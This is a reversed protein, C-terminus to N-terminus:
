NTSSNLVTECLTNSKKRLDAIIALPLEFDIIQPTYMLFYNPIISFYTTYEADWAYCAAAAALSGAIPPDRRDPSPFSFFFIFVTNM